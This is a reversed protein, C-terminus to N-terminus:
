MCQTHIEREENSKPGYNNWIQSGGPIVENNSFSCESHGWHWTVKAAPNHNLLDIGPVLAPAAFDAGDSEEVSFRQNFDLGTGTGEPVLTRSATAPGPFARSSFM